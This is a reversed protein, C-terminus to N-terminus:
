RPSAWPPLSESLAFPNRRGQGLNKLVYAMPTEIVAFALKFILQGILTSAILAMSLTGGFAVSVFILSNIIQSLWTALLNRLWFLKRGRHRSRLFNFFYLDNFFSIGSSLVSAGVIWVTGGLIAQYHEQKLPTWTAPLTFPWVVGHADGVCLNFYVLTAVRLLIGTYVVKLAYNRGAIECLVDTVIFSTSFALTGAPLLFEQGHVFFSLMKTNTVDATILCVVFVLGCLLVVYEKMRAATEKSYFDQPALTGESANM